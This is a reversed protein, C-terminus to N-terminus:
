GLKAADGSRVAANSSNLALGIKKSVDGAVGICDFYTDTRTSLSPDTLDALKGNASNLFKDANNCDTVGPASTTCTELLKSISDAM